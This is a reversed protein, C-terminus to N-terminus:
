FSILKVKFAVDYKGLATPRDIGFSHEVVHGSLLPRNQFCFHQGRYSIVLSGHTHFRVHHLLVVVVIQPRKSRRKSGASQAHRSIPKLGLTDPNLFRLNLREIGRRTLRSKIRLGTKGRGFVFESEIALLVSNIDTTNWHEGPRSKLGAEAIRRQVKVSQTDVVVGHETKM